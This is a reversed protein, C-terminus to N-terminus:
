DESNNHLTLIPEEKLLMQLDSLNLFHRLDCQHHPAWSEREEKRGEEEIFLYQVKPKCSLNDHSLNKKEEEAMKM